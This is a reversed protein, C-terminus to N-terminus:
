QPHRSGAIDKTVNERALGRPPNPYDSEVVDGLNREVVVEM